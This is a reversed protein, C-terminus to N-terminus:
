MCHLALWARCDNRVRPVHGKKEMEGGGQQRAVSDNM